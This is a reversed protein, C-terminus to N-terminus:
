LRTYTFGYKEAFLRVREPLLRRCELRYTELVFKKVIEKVGSLNIGRPQESTAAIVVRGLLAAVRRRRRLLLRGVLGRLLRRGRGKTRRM